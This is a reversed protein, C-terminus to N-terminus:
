CIEGETRTGETRGADQHLTSILVKKAIDLAEGNGNSLFKLVIYTGNVKVNREVTHTPDVNAKSDLVAVM